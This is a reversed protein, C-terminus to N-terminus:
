VGALCYLVAEKNLAARMGPMTMKRCFIHRPARALFRYMLIIDALYPFFSRRLLVLAKRSWKLNIHALYLFYLILDYM